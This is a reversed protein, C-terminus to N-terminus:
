FGDDIPTVRREARFIDCRSNVVLVVQIQKLQEM